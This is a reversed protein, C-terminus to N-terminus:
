SAAAAEWDPRVIALIQEDRSVGGFYASGRSIGEPVFGVNRYARHARVNEPFHGIWVRYVQTTRFAEDVIARLFASGLGKGPDSVALRKVLIVREPAGWGRLIAFGIPGGGAEGVLYTSEAAIERQHREETWSGVLAEYGDLRETQMIFPIDAAVARRITVAPERSM